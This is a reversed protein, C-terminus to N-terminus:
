KNGALKNYRDLWHQSKAYLTEALERNGRESAENADALYRGCWAEAKLMRKRIAEAFDPNADAWDIAQERTECSFARKGDSLFVCWRQRGRTITYIGRQFPYPETM